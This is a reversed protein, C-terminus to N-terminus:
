KKGGTGWRPDPPPTFVVEMWPRLSDDAAERAYFSIRTRATLEGTSRVVIGDERSGRVWDRVTTGAELRLGLSPRTLVSKVLELDSTGVLAFTEPDSEEVWGPSPGSSTLIGHVALSVTSDPETVVHLHLMAREITVRRFQPDGYRARLSDLVPFQFIARQPLWDALTITPLTGPVSPRHDLYIYADAAPSRVALVSDGQMYELAPNAARASDPQGERSLFELAGDPSDFSLRLAIGENQDPLRVWRRLLPGDILVVRRVFVTDSAPPNIPDLSVDLPSPLLRTTDAPTLLYVSNASDAKEAWSWNVDPRVEYAAVRLGSGAGSRLLLGLRAGSLAGTDAPIDTFRLFAIAEMSDTRAVRLLPSLGTPIRARHERDATAPVRLTEPPATLGTRNTGPNLLSNEGPSCALGLLALLGFAPWSFLGRRWACSSSASWSRPGRVPIAPVTPRLLVKGARRAGWGWPEDQFPM